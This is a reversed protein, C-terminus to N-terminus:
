TKKHHRRELPERRLALTGTSGPTGGDDQTKRRKGLHCPLVIGLTRHEWMKPEEEM